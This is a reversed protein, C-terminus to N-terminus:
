RRAGTRPWSASRPGRSSRPGAAGGGSARRREDRRVEALHLRLGLAGSNWFADVGAVDTGEINAQSVFVEPVAVAQDVLMEDVKAWAQARAQEGVVLAARAMAANIQPQQGPRLQLQRHPHDRARSRCTCCRRRTPSTARDLRREPLRRDGARARRLVQRVDGVPRRPQPQDQLRPEAAGPQRDARGSRRTRRDLRRGPADQRRHVQREPLRRAAHVERRGGHRGAPHENYDLKPGALVAPRSRLGGRRPLPLPDDAGGRARGGRVKVIADRDLAAWFPGACTSTAHVPGHANNLASTTPAPARPSPSRSVPYHEYAEKVISQAPPDNQSRRRRGELVQRGIVSPEGGINIDIQNLYAPRYDTHPNWNPNRVLTASKGPQYGIGLFKGDSDSKLMYPGTAVLYETGYTTPNHADLPKAFEPPVPASLPLSLAGHPDRRTPKTLHFVITYPTRRKSEPSRAATPRKAGRGPRRLLRPLLPQRRQPQRRARDRLRRGGSNSKATSPRASTSTPKIHVTVTRGGDSVIPPGAAVDPELKRATNPPYSYLPRQTAYIVTYDQDSYASARSRPKRLGRPRLRDAHRRAAQRLAAPRDPSEGAKLPIARRARAAPAARPSCSRSCDPAACRRLPAAGDRRSMTQGRRMHAGIPGRQAVTSRGDHRGRTSHTRCATASCTSPSCPSCCPSAPSPWTGGPPTSSRPPTRSCRGGAPPPRASASASSRSRRRSCSTRRPDPPERLRDAARAPQPPDRPLRHARGLRGALPLGRRVRARAALAGPRARHARHLDLQCLAVIAIITSTGPQILGECAAACAARPASGSASLLLPFSLVVDIARSLLTDLSGRYFGALLGVVTGICRRSARHRHDWRLSVRTGYIVRAFVDRGLQDVGFPHAASPGIPSGFADLREPEARQARARRRALRGAARRARRVVLLAIFGLSVLAVRDRRFRRWFLQWPRAGPSDTARTSCTWDRGRRAGARWTAARAGLGGRTAGQLLLDAAGTTM